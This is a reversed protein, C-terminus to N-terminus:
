WHFLKGFSWIDIANNKFIPLWNLNIELFSSKLQALRYSYPQCILTIADIAIASIPKSYDCSPDSSGKRDIGKQVIEWTTTRIGKFLLLILKSERESIQITHDYRLILKRPVLYKVIIFSNNGNRDNQFDLSMWMCPCGQLLSVVKNMKISM